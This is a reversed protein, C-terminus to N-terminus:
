HQRAEVRADADQSQRASCETPAHKRQQTQPATAVTPRPVTEYLLEAALSCPEHQEDGFVSVLTFNVMPYPVVGDFEITDSDDVAGDPPVARDGAREFRRPVTGSLPASV